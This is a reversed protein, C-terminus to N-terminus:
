KNIQKSIAWNLSIGAEIIEGKLNLDIESEILFGIKELKREINEFTKKGAPTLFVKIIRNDLETRKRIVWKKKELGDILRTSTSNDIGLKISFVSMEVGDDEILSIALLQQFSANPLKLNKRYLAKLNFFLDSLLEAYQM